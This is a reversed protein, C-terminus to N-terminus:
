WSAGRWGHASFWDELSPNPADGSSATTDDLAILCGRRPWTEPKAVDAMNVTDPNMTMRTSPSIPVAHAVTDCTASSFLPLNTPITTSASVPLSPSTHSPAQVAPAREATERGCAIAALLLLGVVRRRM